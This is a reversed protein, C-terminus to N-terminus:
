GGFHETGDHVHSDIGIVRYFPCHGMAATVALVAALIGALLAAIGSVFGMAIVFVIIVAVFSRVLRDTPGMNKLM